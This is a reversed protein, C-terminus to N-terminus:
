PRWDDVPIPEDLRGEGLWRAVYIDQDLELPRWNPICLFVWEGDDTPAAETVVTRHPGPVDVPHLASGSYLLQRDDRCFFLENDPGVRGGWEARDTNLIPALPLPTQGATPDYLWLDSTGESGGVVTFVYKSQSGALYVADSSMEDGNGTLREVAGWPQSASERIASGIWTGDQDEITVLSRTEDQSVWTVVVRTAESVGALIVPEPSTWGDAGLETRFPREVPPQGEGPAELGPRPAGIWDRDARAAPRLRASFYLVQGGAIPVPAREVGDSNIRGPDVRVGDGDDDSALGPLRWRRFTEFDTFYSAQATINSTGQMMTSGPVPLVVVETGPDIDEISAFGGGALVVTESTVVIEAAIGQELIPTPRGGAQEARLFARPMGVQVQVSWVAGGGEVRTVGILNGFIETDPHQIPREPDLLDCGGVLGLMMLPLLVRRWMADETGTKIM